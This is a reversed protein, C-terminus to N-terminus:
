KSMNRPNKLNMSSSKTNVKKQLRGCAVCQPLLKEQQIRSIIDYIFRAKFTKVTQTNPTKYLCDKHPCKFCIHEPVLINVEFFKLTNEPKTGETNEM